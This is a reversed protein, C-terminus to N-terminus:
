VAVEAEIKPHPDYGILSIDGSTISLLGEFGSRWFKQDIQLFPLPRPQRSMQLRAQELHNNYLHLDGFTIILDRPRRGTTFAYLSLLLAYSAINFPLGLFCDISRAYLQLSLSNDSHVKL